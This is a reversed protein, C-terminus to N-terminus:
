PLLCVYSVVLRNEAPSGDRKTKVLDEISDTIFFSPSMRLNLAEMSNIKKGGKGVKNKHKSYLCVM